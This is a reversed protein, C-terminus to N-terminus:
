PSRLIRPLLVRFRAREFTATITADSEVTITLPNDVQTEFAGTATVQNSWGVFTSGAAPIATLVVQTGCPCLHAGLGLDVTGDGSGAKAVTVTLLRDFRAWLMMDRDVALTLPNTATVVDGSWGAFVSGTGPSATLVVQAGGAVSHAGPEPDITGVGAGTTVLTLTHDAPEAVPDFRAAIAKNGDMVLTAPNALGVLDGQWGAFTWGPEPTATIKVEDGPEYVHAGASPSVSGSGAVEVVLSLDVDVTGTAVDQGIANTVTLVVTFLGAGAYTHDPHEASDSPSGDGFDWTYALPEDGSSLNTFHVAEGLVVSSSVPVFGAQISGPVPFVTAAPGYRTPCNYVDVVDLWYFAENPSVADVWQYHAGSPGGVMQAPILEENLPILEGPGGERYLDFGLLGVESATEWEVLISDALATATFSALVVNQPRSGMASATSRGAAPIALTSIVLVVIWFRKM